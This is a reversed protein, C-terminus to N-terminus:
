WPPELGLRLRNVDLDQSLPQRYSSLSPGLEPEPM